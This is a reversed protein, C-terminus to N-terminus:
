RIVGITKLLAGILILAIIIWRIVDQARLSAHHFPGADLYAGAAFVEEGILPYDSTAYLLAQSQVDQTGAIVSAKKQQGFSAVLAGESGFPGIMIHASIHEAALFTPMGAAYSFPTPGILRGSTAEYKSAADLHRYASRLTDQALVVLSGDGTSVMVPKDSMATASALRALVTLGAFAAASEPSILEGTGLSLHVRQGSEVACEIANRLAQYGSIPRLAIPWRKGIFYFGIMLGILVLVFFLGLLGHENM